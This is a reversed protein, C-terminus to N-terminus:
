NYPETRVLPGGMTMQYPWMGQESTGPEWKDRGEWPKAPESEETWLTNFHQHEEPRAAKGGEVKQISTHCTM